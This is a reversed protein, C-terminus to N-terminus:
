LNNRYEELFQKEMQLQKERPKDKVPKCPRGYCITWGPMSKTVLSGAGISCGDGLTVGPMIISGAGIHVHRGISVPANKTNRYKGFVQLGIFGNGHYDDTSALIIGGPGIASFDGFEILGGSMLTCHVTVHCFNGLKIGDGQAYLLAFDDVVTEKGISINQPYIVKALEWIQANKGFHKFRRSQIM